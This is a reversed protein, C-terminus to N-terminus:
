TRVLAPTTAMRYGHWLALLRDPPCVLYAGFPCPSTLARTPSPNEVRPFPCERVNGVPLCPENGREAKTQGKCLQVLMGLQDVSRRGRGPDVFAVDAATPTFYRILEDSTIEPFSRLQELQEESFMKESLAGGRGATGSSVPVFTVATIVLGDFGVM